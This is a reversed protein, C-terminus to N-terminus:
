ILSKLLLTTIYTHKGGGDDFSLMPGVTPDCDVDPPPPYKRILYGRQPLHIKFQRDEGDSTYGAKYYFVPVAYVQQDSSHEVVPIAGYKQDWLFQRGYQDRFLRKQHQLKARSDEIGPMMAQPNQEFASALSNWYVDESTYDM